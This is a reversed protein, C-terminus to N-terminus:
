RHSPSALRVFYIWNTHPAIWTRYMVPPFAAQGGCERPNLTIVYQPNFDPTLYLSEYEPCDVTFALRPQPKYAGRPVRIEPNNLYGSKEIQSWAQSEFPGLVSTIPVGKSRIENVAGVYSRYLAFKDHTAVVSFGGVLVIFLLCISPLNTQIAEQYYRTMVLLLIPLMPLLYRDFIGYRITASALFVIYVASFPVLLVAITQWPIRNGKRSSDQNARKGTKLQIVLGLLGCAVVGAVLYRLGNQAIGLRTKTSLILDLREFTDNTMYDAAFIHALGMRGSLILTILPLMLACAGAFVLATGRNLARLRGAFAVLVPLTLVCLLAPFYIGCEALAKLGELDIGSPLPSDPATYPQRAFWHMLEIVVCVSIAWSLFGFVLVRRSHRLLWLTSPVMVLAGLWAFQRGTGGVVSSLTAFGIWAMASGETTAGLARMCMYLCVVICFVCPVDTMFTFSLPLFLPSVVFSITALTANWSNLGFREFTRELLFAIAVSELATSSRVVTFSFGFLRIFVAGFYAQWGLMPAAWGNYVLHGTRALVQATKIYSWDDDLGIEAVPHILLYCILPILACIMAPLYNRLATRLKM